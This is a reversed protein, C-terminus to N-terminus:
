FLLTHCTWLHHEPSIHQSPSDNQESALCSYVTVTSSLWVSLALQM